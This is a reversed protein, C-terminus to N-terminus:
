IHDPANEFGGVEFEDVLVAAARADTQTLTLPGFLRFLWYDAAVAVVV